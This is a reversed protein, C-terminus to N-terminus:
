NGGTVSNGLANNYGNAGGARYIETEVGKSPVFMIRFALGQAEETLRTALDTLETGMYQYAPMKAMREARSKTFPVPKTGSVIVLPEVKVELNGGRQLLTLQVCTQTGVMMGPMAPGGGSFIIQLPAGVKVRGRDPYTRCYGTYGEVGAVDLHLEGEEYAWMSERVNVTYSDKDLKIAVPTTLEIPRLPTVYRLKEASIDLACNGLEIANEVTCGKAWQFDLKRGSYLFRAIPKRQPEGAEPKKAKTQPEVVYSVVWTQLNAKVDVSEFECRAKGPTPRQSLLRMSIQVKPPLNLTALTVATSKISTEVQPLRLGDVLSRFPQDSQGDPAGNQDPQPEPPPPTVDAAAAAVPQVMAAPENQVSTIDAPPPADTQPTSQNPAATSASAVQSTTTPPAERRLYENHRLVRSEEADRLAQPLETFIGALFGIAAVLLICIGVGGLSFIPAAGSRNIQRQIM